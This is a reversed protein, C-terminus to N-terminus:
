SSRVENFRNYIVDNVVQVWDDVHVMIQKIASLIVADIESRHEHRLNNVICNCCRFFSYFLDFGVVISVSTAALYEIFVFHCPIHITLFSRDQKEHLRRLRQFKKRWRMECITICKM